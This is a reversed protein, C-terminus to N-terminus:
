YEAHHVFQKTPLSAGVHVYGRMNKLIPNLAWESAAFKLFSHTPGAIILNNNM